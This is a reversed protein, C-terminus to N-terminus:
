NNELNLKLDEVAVTNTNDVENVDDDEIDESTASMIEEDSSEDKEYGKLRGNNVKTRNHLTKEASKLREMARMKRKLLMIVKYSASNIRKLRRIEKKLDKITDSCPCKFSPKPM